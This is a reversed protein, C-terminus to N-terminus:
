LVVGYKNLEAELDTALNFHIANINLSKASIINSFNDDIFVAKEPDIQYRDLMIQYFDLFPKRTKEEGSVVIGDFWDLFKFRELEKAWPLTEHSWNTLAYVKYDTHKITKELIKITPEIADGLMEIWRGYFARIEPEWEPFLDIRDQTAQALPYGADQNENWHSPCVEAFFYQRKEPDPILKEFVYNPNWDILVGGLDFIITDIKKENVM